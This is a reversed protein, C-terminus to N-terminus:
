ESAKRTSEFSGFVIPLIPPIPIIRNESERHKLILSLTRPSALPRVSHVPRPGPTVRVHGRIVPVHVLKHLSKHLFDCPCLMNRTSYRHM